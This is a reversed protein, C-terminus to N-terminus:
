KFMWKCEASDILGFHFSQTKQLVIPAIKSEPLPFGFGDVKLM